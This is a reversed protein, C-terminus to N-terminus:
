GLEFVAIIGDGGAHGFANATWRWSSGGGGGMHGPGADIVPWGAIPQGGAGGWFSAGGCGPEDGGTASFGPNGKIKIQGITGIGPNNGVSVGWPGWGPGGGTAAAINGFNSAGGPFGNEAYNQHAQGGKGVNLAVTTIAEINAFAIATGGADGGSGNFAGAPMGASGGAGTCIVGAATTGETKVYTEPGPDTYVRLNLFAYGGAAKRAGQSRALGLMHWAGDFYAIPQPVHDTWDGAELQESDNRLVPVFAGNGVDIRVNGINTVTPLATLVMGNNLGNLLPPDLIGIYNYVPTAQPQLVVWRPLGKQDIYEVGERLNTLRGPRYPLGVRDILALGESILSNLVHPRLRVDCGNGYYLADTDLPMTVPAYAQAPSTPLAPNPAIGGDKPLPHWGSM